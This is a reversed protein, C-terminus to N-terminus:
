KGSGTSMGSMAGLFGALRQPDSYIKQFLDPDNKAENQPLGTRLAETLNGWFPYLRNNAMELMGGIYSPSNKELFAAAEPTNSYRGEADRDIMKLAVLTDFFDASGRGNLGLERTLTGVDRPGKALTDFVGLEVASLLTKAAAFGFVVEFIRDPTLSQSM